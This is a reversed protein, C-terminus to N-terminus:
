VGVGENRSRGGGNNWRVSCTRLLQGARMDLSTVATVIKEHTVTLSPCYKVKVSTALMLILEARDSTCYRVGRDVTSVSVNYISCYTITIKM